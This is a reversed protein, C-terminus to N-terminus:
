KTGPGEAAKRFLFQGILQELIVASQTIKIKDGNKLYKDEGGATLGVYQEGLLGSTFIGATSDEPIHNYQPDIALTVVAEYEDQDFEIASVRGVPVGAMKVASLVKLGGINDFHAVVKYGARQTFAALNSVKLALVLLAGVGAVLFLGVATELGKTQRM